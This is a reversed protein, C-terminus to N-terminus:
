FFTGEAGRREGGREQLCVPGTGLDPLQGGTNCFLMWEDRSIQHDNDTDIMTRVTDWVHKKKEPTALEAPTDDQLLGYLRLVTEENWLGNNDFDHLM